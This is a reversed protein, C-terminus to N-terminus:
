RRGNIIVERWEDMGTSSINWEKMMNVQDQPEAKEFAILRGANEDGELASLLLSAESRRTELYPLAIEAAKYVALDGEFVFQRGEWMVGEVGLEKKLVNTYDIARKTAFPLILRPIGNKTISMEGGVEWLNGIFSDIRKLFVPQRNAGYHLTRDDQKTGKGVVSMEFLHGYTKILGAVEGSTAGVEYSAITAANMDGNKQLTTHCTSLINRERRSLRNEANLRDHWAKWIEDREEKSESRKVGTVTKKLQYELREPYKILLNFDNDQLELLGWDDQQWWDFSKLVAHQEQLLMEVVSPILAEEGAKSLLEILDAGAIGLEDKFFSKTIGVTPSATVGPQDTPNATQEGGKMGTIESGTTAQPPMPAATPPPTQQQQQETEADVDTDIQALEQEKVKKQDLLGTMKGAAAGILSPALKKAAVGAVAGLAPLIKVIADNM